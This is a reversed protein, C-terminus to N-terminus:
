EHSRSVESTRVTVALSATSRLAHAAWMRVPASPDNCAHGLAPLAVRIDKGRECWIALARASVARVNAHRNELEHALTSITRPGLELVLSCVRDEDLNHKPIHPFFSRLGPFRKWAGALPGFMRPTEARGFTTLIFPLAPPGIEHLAMSCDEYGADLWQTVTKGGYMPEQQRSAALYLCSVVALLVIGSITWHRHM